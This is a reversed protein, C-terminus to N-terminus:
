RTGAWLARLTDGAVVGNASVKVRRQYDRLARDTARNFVGTVSLQPNPSVANLARQVQRVDTGASGFKLVRKTGAVHLSTWARRNWAARVTLKKKTQWANAAAITADTYAGNVRGSYLKQEKLQCQLAKVLDTQTTGPRLPPYTAFDLRTGRCHKPEPAAVSGRGLRLYNRDINITVGGWTENHGGQYQKMRGGPLWGDSRIYSTSTNAKGDWRAIWIRDPMTYAGPRNVRADDLVKIGSGASSYVGSVYDLAHLRNTWATLFALASERCDRKTHDFAELDYWLTSGPVIGLAKAATVASTAEASGQRRAPRYLAKAGRKPRITPDDNYRPFRTSCSAQPGLTIPLLRWGKKLQSSVWAPTLNPQSRCARSKGSIYIGVALFPSNRLWTNMSKQTPTLCQDFGYGTFNGPTAPNAARAPSAVLVSAVLTLLVTAAAARATRRSM